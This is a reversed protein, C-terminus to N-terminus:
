DPEPPRYVDPGALERRTTQRPLKRPGGYRRRMERNAMEAAARDREQIQKRIREQQHQGVGELLAYRTLPTLLRNRFHGFAQEWELRLDEPVQGPPYGAVPARPGRYVMLGYRSLLKQVPELLRTAGPIPTGGISPLELGGVRQRPQLPEGTVPNVAAPLAQSVLPLNAGVGERITPDFLTKLASLVAQGPIARNITDELERRLARPDNQPNELAQLFTKITSGLLGGEGALLRAGPVSAFRLAATAKSADGHLVALFWLASPIPDRNSLRIRNGEDDVYEMSNFDVRHYLTNNILYLGGLGVAAKGLYEGVDAAQLTGARLRHYMEPNWGLMEGAWRTFQFPWRAFVDVLLRATSSSAVKEELKSLDRNFGAKNGNAIARELAERPPDRLFDDFFAQRDAGTIGQRHAAEIAERYLTWHTGLRKAATDMAAKAYLPWGVTYDYVKSALGKRYTFTGAGEERRLREGHQTTGLRAEVDPELPKTVSRRALMESLTGQARIARWLGQMSPFTPNGQVVHVLDRGLGAGVQGALEAANGVADLTWSSVSFLNLRFHDVLDRGFQQREAATLTKWNRLGHLINSAIPARNRVDRLNGAILGAERLRDIVDLPIGRNFRQVQRGATTRYVQWNRVAQEMIQRSLRMSYASEPDAGERFHAEADRFEKVAAVLEAGAQEIDAESQRFTRTEERAPQGGARFAPREGKEITGREQVREAGELAIRIKENTAEFTDAIKRARNSATVAEEALAQKVPRAPPKPPPAGAGAAPPVGPPLPPGGGAAARSKPYISRLYRGLGEVNEGLDTSMREAWDSFKSIGRRMLGAGYATVDQLAEFGEGAAAGMSLAKGRGRGKLRALARDAEADVEGGGEETAKEPEGQEQQAQQAAQQDSKDLDLKTAIDAQEKVLADLKEQHEFPKGIEKQLDAVKKRADAAYGKYVSIRSEIDEGVEIVHKLTTAPKEGERRLIDFTVGASSKVALYGKDKSPRAELKLGAFEGIIQPAKLTEADVAAVMAEAAAVAADKDKGNYTKDLIRIPLDEGKTLAELRGLDDTMGKVQREYAAVSAPLQAAERKAQEQANLHHVRLTDLRRIETDVKVKEMVLPNGSAIAKIEAYTLAAAEVDEASRVGVDGRMVQAIFRAKTELTQWRYADFSGETVYRYISVEKNDNGQRLIRGERQEIDSPRWPADLHHLAALRKQVNTGVGMKETSGLLFRVRGANVADFLEKKAADTDATHIYAIEKDPVGRDVLKQRVDDYVNFGGKEGKPKPTSSDLFVIQTGRDAATAKWTSVMKEVARNVKGDPNDPLGPQILRPDLAAKAGDGTIKLMNDVHPDVMGGRVKKAREVLTQVYKKLWETAPAAVGEAKGGSLKPRPLNLMEATQVDAIQRFGAVLEPLNTFRAFRSHVRYGSGDPALELGHVIEGFNGAWADFHTMGMAKLLDPQLYRQMNFFEAITNSIPTGTAFTVGRGGNLGSVYDTKMFMDFARNSESNPLGAVRTMKTPFWLNKFAHAEDVFLSDVGLEEFSVTVDKAERQARDKIKKELRKLAKELEKVIRSDKGSEKRASLIYDRLEDLQATMHRGFTEDSIPLKEFSNHGLIVADYNGTAIRSAMQQRKGKAFSEKGAVLVNASPYLRLFEAGWQEVLHNPVVYMPKKALGLRRQEMGAAIMEFTKGAGVAHALLTNKGSQLVRWIANRQHPDLDGGRLTARAMGPFTLHKGDYERLRLNNFDENYKKALRTAREPERFLWQRFEDKIKGQAERAATTEDQNLVRSDGSVDYVSPQRLNLADEILDIASARKTGWKATSAVGERVNYPVDVTWTAISPAHDVRVRENGLLHRVFDEVDSAEIWSAGLRAEIEAPELDKPQVKRLAEANRKFTADSSAAAEAV